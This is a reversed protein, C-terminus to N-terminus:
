VLGTRWLEHLHVVGAVRQTSQEIQDLSHALRQVHAQMPVSTAAALLESRGRVDSDCVARYLEEVLRWREVSM